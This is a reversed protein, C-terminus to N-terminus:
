SGRSKVEKSSLYISDFSVEWGIAGVWRAQKRGNFMVHPLNAKMKKDFLLKRFDYVSGPSINPGWSRSTNDTKPESFYLGQNGVLWILDRDSISIKDSLDIVRPNGGNKTIIGTVHDEKEKYEPASIIVTDEHVLRSLRSFQGALDVQKWTLSRMERHREGTAAHVLREGRDKMYALLPMYDRDSSALVLYDHDKMTSHKIMEVTLLVDVGVESSKSVAEGCSGCKNSTDKKVREQFDFFLGSMSGFNDLTKNVFLQDRPNTKNHSGFIFCGALERQSKDAHDVKTSSVLFSTLDNWNVDIQYSTQSRANIVVNWLDVFIKVKSSDSDAM